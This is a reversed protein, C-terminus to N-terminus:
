TTVGDYNGIQYASICALIMCILTGPMFTELVTFAFVIVIQLGGALARDGANREAKIAEIMALKEEPTKADLRKAAEQLAEETFRQEYGNAEMEAETLMVTKNERAFEPRLDNEVIGWILSERDVGMEGDIMNQRYAAQEQASMARWRTEAEKWLDPHYYAKGDDIDWDYDEDKLRPHEVPKGQKRFEAQVVKSAYASIMEEESMSNIRNVTAAEGLGVGGGISDAYVTYNLTLRSFFIAMLTILVATTAPAWGEYQAAGLRVGAGVATGTLVSLYWVNWGTGYAVVWWIGGGVFGGVIGGLTWLIVATGFSRTPAKKVKKKPKSDKLKKPSIPLDDFDDDEVDKAARKSKSSRPPPIDPLEDDDEDLLEVDDLVEEAVRPKRTVPSKASDSTKTASVVRIMEPRAVFKMQCKPCRVKRNILDDPTGPMALTAECGKCVIQVKDSM